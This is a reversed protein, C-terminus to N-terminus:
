LARQSERLIKSGMAVEAGVDRLMAIRAAPM